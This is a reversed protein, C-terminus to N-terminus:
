FKGFLHTLKCDLATAIKYLSSVSASSEAREIQSLLSVSLGTRRSMQKLTLSQAKRMRRITDGITAHLEEEPNCLLNKQRLITEIALFLQETDFPKQIYDSVSQKLSQVATEVTPYGTVVVVAIDDDYRRIQDLLDMGNLGPMVLDLIVIHYTGERLVALTECPDTMSKVTIGFRAGLLHELNTCVDRDDDVVLVGIPLRSSASAMTVTSDDM